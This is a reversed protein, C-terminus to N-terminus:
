GMQSLAFMLGLAYPNMAALGGAAGVGAGGAAATPAALAAGAAPVAATAAGGLSLAEAAAPALSAATADVAATPALASLAAEPAPFAGLGQGVVEGGPYPTFAGTSEPGFIADAIPTRDGMGYNYMQAAGKINGSRLANARNTAENDARSQAIEAAMFQPTEARKNAMFNQFAPM